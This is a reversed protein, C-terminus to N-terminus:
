FFVSVTIQLNEATITLILIVTLPYIQLFTADHIGTCTLYFYKLVRYCVQTFLVVFSPGFCDSILEVINLLQNYMLRVTEPHVNHRSYSFTTLLKLEINQSVIEKLLKFRMILSDIFHLHMILLLLIGTREFARLFSIFLASRFTRYHVAVFVMALYDVIFTCLMVQITFVEHIKKQQIDRGTNGQFLRDFDDFSTFISFLQDESMIRLGIEVFIIGYEMIQTFVGFIPFNSRFTLTFYVEALFNLLINQM